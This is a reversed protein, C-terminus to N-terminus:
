HVREDCLGCIVQKCLIGETKEQLFSDELDKCDLLTLNNTVASQLKTSCTNAFVEKIVTFMERYRIM